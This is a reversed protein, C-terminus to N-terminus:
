KGGELVRAGTAADTTEPDIAVEDQSYTRRPKKTTAEAWGLKLFYPEADKDEFAVPVDAPIEVRDHRVFQNFILAM